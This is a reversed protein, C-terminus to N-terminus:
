YRSRNRPRGLHRSLTTITLANNSPVVPGALPGRERVASFGRAREGERKREEERLRGM